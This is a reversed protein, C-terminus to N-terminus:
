PLAVKLAAFIEKIGHVFAAPHPGGDEVAHEIAVVMGVIRRADDVVIAGSDGKDAFPGDNGSVWWGNSYRAGMDKM